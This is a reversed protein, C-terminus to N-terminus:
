KKLKKEEEDAIDKIMQAMEYNESDICDQILHNTDQLGQEEDIILWRKDDLTYGAHSYPLSDDRKVGKEELKGRIFETTTLM